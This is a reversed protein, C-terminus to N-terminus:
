RSFTAGNDLFVSASNDLADDYLSFSASNDLADDDLSVPANDKTFVSPNGDM